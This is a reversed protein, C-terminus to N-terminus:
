GADQEHRQRLEALGESAENLETRMEELAQGVQDSAGSLTRSLDKLRGILSLTTRILVGITLLCLAAIVLWTWSSVALM